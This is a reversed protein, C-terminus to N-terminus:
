TIAYITKIKKAIDAFTSSVPLYEIGPDSFGIKKDLNKHQKHIIIKYTLCRVDGGAKFYTV